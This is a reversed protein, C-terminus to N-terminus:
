GPRRHGLPRPRPPCCRGGEFVHGTGHNFRVEIPFQRKPDAVEEWAEQGFPTERSAEGGQARYFSHLNQFIM